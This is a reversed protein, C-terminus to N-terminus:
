SARALCLRAEYELAISGGNREIVEAVAGLLRERQDDALLIHDSHTRLLQLYDESGHMQAWLHSRVFPQDFGQLGAVELVWDRDWDAPQTPLMPNMPGPQGAFVPLTRAYVNALQERLESAEWRPRNWFLALAGGDALTERARTYRVEPAVWHWAQASFLLQHKHRARPAWREFESEVITVNEFAECNRRAVNAMTHDPELATIDLKRAAFLVTAKGTGAGVELTRAGEGVGAFEIVDDVLAVPYSPRALDYLEAVGGFSLRRREDSM